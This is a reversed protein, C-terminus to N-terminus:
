RNVIFKSYVRQSGVELEMLYVGSAFDSTNLRVENGGATSVGRYVNGMEAGTVNFLTVSVNKGADAMFRLSTSSTAPNPYVSLGMGNVRPQFEGTYDKNFLDGVDLYSLVDNYLRVDDLVGNFFRSANGMQGLFMHDLDYGTPNYATTDWMVVGDIYLAVFGTGWTAAIHHWEGDNILTPNVPTNGPSGGKEPDSHVFTNPDAIVFFSCEGGKWADNPGGEMHVHLENEEGFGGGTDNDGAWFMTNIQDEAYDSKMWFAVSGIDSTMGMDDAPLTVSEAGNFQLGGNLTGETWCDACSTTADFGNGSVDKAVTGETEDLAYRAKLQPQGYGLQSVLLMALMLGTSLTYIKKM